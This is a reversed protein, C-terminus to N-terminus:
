SPSYRRVLERFQEAILNQFEASEPKLKARVRDEIRVLRVERRGGGFTLREVSGAGYWGGGSLSRGDEDSDFAFEGIGSLVGSDLLFERERFTQGKWRYFFAVPDLQTIAVADTEWSAKPRGDPGYLTGSVYVADPKMRVTLWTLVDAVVHGEDNKDFVLQWWDGSCRTLRM